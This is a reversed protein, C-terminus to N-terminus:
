AASTIRIAPIKEEYFAVRDKLDRHEDYPEEYTWVTDKLTKGGAALGFYHATGKFPCTTTTETPQLKEMRVDGRPFYYRPPNGDEDVEVVDASDAVLEGDIEVRVRQDLHIERVKHDPHHRHGPSKSM